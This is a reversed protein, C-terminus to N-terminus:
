SLLEQKLQRFIQPIQDASACNGQASYNNGGGRGDYQAIITKFLQGLHKNELGSSSVLLRPVADIVSALLAITQPTDKSIMAGLQRLQNIDLADTTTEVILFGNETYGNAILEQSRYELLKTNLTNLMKHKEKDTQIMKEVTEVISDESVSTLEVLKNISNTKQSYDTLARYGCVFYIRVSQRIRETKIIKILGIEGTSHPHTGGCPSYDYKNLEVIRINESVKPQKRLDLRSLEEQNVFYTKIPLNAFVLENASTELAMLQKQSLHEIALDVTTYHASLHFGVTEAQIEKDAVGSLIHQGAHQQMHDFRRKWDLQCLVQNSSPKEKVLHYIADGEIKSKILPQGGITGYDDPQGGGEPYFITQDLCIWYGDAAKETAVINATLEKLYPNQYYLQITM